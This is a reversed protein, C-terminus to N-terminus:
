KWEGREIGVTGQVSIGYIGWGIDPGPPTVPINVRESEDLTLPIIPTPSTVVSAEKIPEATPNEYQASLSPPAERMSDVGVNNIDVTMCGACSGILAGGLVGRVTSKIEKSGM